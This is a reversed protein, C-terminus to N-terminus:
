KKKSRLHTTLYDLIVTPLTILRHKSENCFDEVGDYSLWRDRQGWCITTEVKWNAGMLIKRM